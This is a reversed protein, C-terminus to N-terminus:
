GDTTALIDDEAGSQRAVWGDNPDVFSVGLLQFCSGTSCSLQTTWDAGGDVTALIVSGTGAGGVAWGDSANVFSVGSLNV